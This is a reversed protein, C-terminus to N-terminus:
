SVRRLSTKYIEYSIVVRTLDEIELVDRHAWHDWLFHFIIQVLETKQSFYFFSDGIHRRSFFKGLTSLTLSLHLHESIRVLVFHDEGVGQPMNETYIYLSFIKTIILSNM